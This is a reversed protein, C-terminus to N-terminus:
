GSRERKRAQHVRIGGHVVVGFLAGALSAMGILDVLVSRDHGSVYVDAELTSPIYDLGGDPTKLFDGEMRANAWGVVEPLVDGPLYEALRFPETMRSHGTHCEECEKTAWGVASVNHHVGYLQIESVIRPDKVGSTELRTRITEVKTATDLRLEDRSLVGNEDTDMLQLLEPHYGNGDLFARKLDILRVPRAPEGGVWYWFTITNYPFLSTTGDTHQRPLLVPRYGSVLSRPDDVDGEVGRYTYVGEGDSTLVTWDVQKLAPAHVKPIHCTECSLAALHRKSYPHWEYTVESRHCDECLRM